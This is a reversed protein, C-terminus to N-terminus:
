LVGAIGGTALKQKEQLTSITVELNGNIEEINEVKSDTLINIGSRKLITTLRHDIEKDVTPLICPLIEVVTVEAGFSNFIGAFEIGVVGGGIILIKQPLEELNLAEDSTIVGENQLGPVPIRMVSSGTALIINKTEVIEKGKEKNLVEVKGPELINGEGNIVRIKNAKMLQGVGGTLRQTIMEKRRMVKTFNLSFEGVKIGFEDARKIHNLIEATSVLVKTPICGRNLCVGGLKDKEILVTKLGLHAAKIAAVYGGPGGGIITVDIDSM